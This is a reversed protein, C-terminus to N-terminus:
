NNTDLITKLKHKLGNIFDDPKNVKQFAWNSIDDAKGEKGLNYQSLVLTSGYAEFKKVLELNEPMECNVIYLDLIGLELQNSFNEFLTKRVNVEISTCTHCRNTIHFYYVKVKLNKPNNSIVTDAVKQGFLNVSLFVIFTLLIINRM